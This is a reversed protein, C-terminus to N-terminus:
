LLVGASITPRVNFVHLIRSLDSKWAAIKEKDTKAYVLRSVANRKSQKITNRQIAAVARHNPQFYYLHDM